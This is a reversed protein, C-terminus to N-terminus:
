LILGGERKGADIIAQNLGRPMKSSEGNLINSEIRKFVIEQYADILLSYILLVRSLHSRPHRALRVVVNKDQKRAEILADLFEKEYSFLKIDFINEIKNILEGNIM